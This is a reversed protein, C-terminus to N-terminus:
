KVRVTDPESARLYTKVPELGYIEQLGMNVKSANRARYELFFFFFFFMERVQFDSGENHLTM